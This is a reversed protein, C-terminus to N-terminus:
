KVAITVGAPSDIGGVRVVIPVAVGVPATEPVQVNIQILGAVLGPAGGAYVLPADIGGIRVSVAQKPAPLPVTALKGDVGDPSTAGEGTAFIQIITGRAAANTASNVSSNQNLVAGPGAGSSNIAFIAPSADVVNLVAEASSTGLYEVTMRTSAKDAVAYPVIASTQTASAYLLPAPIGDFLVRTEGLKNVISTSDANLQMTALQPPGILSGYITIIEGPAVAGANFSAANVVGGAIVTPVTGAQTVSFTKSGIQITGARSETSLNAAIAYSITGNGSISTAGSTISIWAASPAATWSCASTVTISGSSASNSLTLGAPSVSYECLMGSQTLTFVANAVTIHGTRSATSANPQVSYGIVGSGSGSAGATATMWPVDSVATRACTSLASTVTITDASTTNPITRSVPSLTFNCGPDGLQDIPFATATSIGAAGIVINASRASNAANSNVRYTVTGNGLGSSGAMITVFPQSSTATWPCNSYAPSVAIRGTGGNVSVDSAAKPQLAYTCAVGDQTVTFTANAIFIHGVRVPGAKNSAVTFQFSGIGRSDPEGGSTISIWSDPTTAPRLCNGTVSITVIRNVSTGEIPATYAYSSLTVSGCTQALGAAHGAFILLLLRM